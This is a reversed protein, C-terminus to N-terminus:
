GLVHRLATTVKCLFVFMTICYIIGRVTSKFFTLNVDSFGGVVNFHQISTLIDMIICWCYLVTPLLPLKALM